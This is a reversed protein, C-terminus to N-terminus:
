APQPAGDVRRRRGCVHGNRKRHRDPQLPRSRTPEHAIVRFGNALFFMMQADWDDASLPWGHHFMIAPAAKPGWDKLFIDVGENTTMPPM